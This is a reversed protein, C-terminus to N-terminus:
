LNVSQLYDVDLYHVLKEATVPDLIDKTANAYELSAMACWTIGRLCTFNAFKLCRDALGTDKFRGDIREIYDNVFDRKQQATFFFDTKWFTTTDALFHGIDQAPDAILPKEWDILYSPEDANILFNTNNVETNVISFHNQIDGLNWVTEEGESLLREIEAKVKPKCISSELYVASMKKCEALMEAFANKAKILNCDDPVAHAHIEAFISSAEDLHRQNKYDLKEGPLFTEVLVGNKCLTKSGDCYLAAPTRGCGELAKLGSFEYEIQHELGMQSGREVRLIYREGTVPHVFTFNQNYEGHAFDIYTETVQAPLNMAERYSSSAVFDNLGEIINLCENM